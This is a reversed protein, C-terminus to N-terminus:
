EEHQFNIIRVAKEGPESYPSPAISLADLREALAILAYAIALQAFLQDFPPEQGVTLYAKRIAEQLHDTM